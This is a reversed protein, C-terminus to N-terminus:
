CFSKAIKFTFENHFNTLGSEQRFQLLYVFPKRTKFFSFNLHFIKWFTCLMESYNRLQYLLEQTNIILKFSLKIYRKNEFRFYKTLVTLIAFNLFCLFLSKANPKCGFKTLLNRNKINQDSFCCNM